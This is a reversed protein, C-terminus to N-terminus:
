EPVTELACVHLDKQRAFWEIFAEMCGAEHGPATIFDLADSDGSGAGVMRLTTLSIGLFRTQQTYLPALGVPKGYADSFVLALLIKDQGFAKWWAAQWEPTQFISSDPNAQLLSSWTERFQELEDWTACTRIALPGHVPLPTPLALQNEAALM